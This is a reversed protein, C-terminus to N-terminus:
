TRRVPNGSDDFDLRQPSLVTGTKQDLHHFGSADMGAAHLGGSNRAVSRNVDLWDSVYDRSGKAIRGAMAAAILNGGQSDTPSHGDENPGTTGYGLIAALPGGRSQLLKSLNLGTGMAAGWSTVGMSLVNCGALIFLELDIYSSWYKLLDSNNVWSEYGRPSQILLDGAGTMTGRHGGAHGTYYFVHAPSRVLQKTPRTRITLGPKPVVSVELVEVGGSYLLSLADPRELDLNGTRRWEGENKNTPQVATGHHLWKASRRFVSDSTGGERHITALRLQTKAKTTLFDGADGLYGSVFYRGTSGARPVQWFRPKAAANQSERNPPRSALKVEITSPLPDGRADIQINLRYSSLGLIDENWNIPPGHLGSDVLSIKDIVIPM